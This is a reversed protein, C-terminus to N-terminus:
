ILKWLVRGSFVTFVRYKCDYVSLSLPFILLSCVGHGEPSGHGNPQQKTLPGFLRAEWSDLASLSLLPCTYLRLKLSRYM